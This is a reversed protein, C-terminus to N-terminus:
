LKIEPDELGPMDHYDVNLTDRLFEKKNTTINTNARIKKLANIRKKSGCLPCIYIFKSVLDNSGIITYCKSCYGLFKHSKPPNYPKEVKDNKQSLISNKNKSGKPRGRRKKKGM